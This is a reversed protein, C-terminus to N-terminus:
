PMAEGTDKQPLNVKYRLLRGGPGRVTLMFTSGWEAPPLDTEVALRGQAGPALPGAELSVTRVAVSAQELSSLVAETPFWPEQDPANAVTLVILWFTGARYLLGEQVSLGSALDPKPFAELTIFEVHAKDLRRALVWAEASSRDCLARAQALEAQCVELSDPRRRVHLQTDVETPHTTLSLTAWQPSESSAYRVGLTPQEGAAPVRLLVLLLASEGGGLVKVLTEDVQVSGPVIPADFLLVTVANLSMRVAPPPETPETPLTVHRGLLPSPQAAHTLRSVLLVLVVALHAPQCL